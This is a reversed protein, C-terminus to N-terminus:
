EIKSEKDFYRYSKGLLIQKVTEACVGFKKAITQMGYKKSGVVCNEKIYLVQEPTLKSNPHSFNGKQLGNKFAHIQNEGNTCWELNEVRNDTKICNIHNVQPKNEPNPIFTEAVLRHLAYEISKGNEDYLVIKLYGNKRKIPKLKKCRNIKIVKGRTYHYKYLSYIDGNTFIIYRNYILKNEMNIM